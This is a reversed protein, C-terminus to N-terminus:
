SKLKKIDWYYSIKREASVKKKWENWGGTKMILNNIKMRLFFNSYCGDIAFSSTFSEKKM